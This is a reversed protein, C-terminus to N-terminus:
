RGVRRRRRAPVPARGPRGSRGAPRLLIAGGGDGGGIWSQPLQLETHDGGVDLHEVVVGGRQPRELREDLLHARHQAGPGDQDHHALNRHAGAMAQGPADPLRGAQWNRHDAHGLVEAEAPCEVDEEVRVAEDDPRIVRRNAAPDLFQERRLVAGLHRHADGARLHGLMRHVGVQGGADAEHALEGVEALCDTGVGPIDSGGQLGVRADARPCRDEWPKAEGAAGEPAVQLRQPAAPRSCPTGASRNSATQDTLWRRRDDVTSRTRASTPSSAPARM